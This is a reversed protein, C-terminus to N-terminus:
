VQCSSRHEQCDTLGGASLPQEHKHITVSDMWRTGGYAFPMTRITHAFMRQPNLTELCQSTTRIDPWGDISIHVSHREHEGQREGLPARIETICVYDHVLGKTKNCSPWAPAASCSGMHKSIRASRPVTLLIPAERRVIPIGHM